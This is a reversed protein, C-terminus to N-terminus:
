YAGCWKSEDDSSPLTIGSAWVDIGAAASNCSRTGAVSSSASSGCHSLSASAETACPPLTVATSVTSTILVTAVLTRKVALKSLAAPVWAKQRLPRSSTSSIVM